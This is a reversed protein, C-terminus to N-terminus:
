KPVIVPQMGLARRLDILQGAHTGNHFCVRSVLSWLALPGDHWDITEDLTADGASRVAKAFRQCAQEFIIRGRELSPYISGDTSPVSGICVSETDFRQADGATGDGTTFDSEPMPGDDFYAAVRHMTVALHGLTWIVHNPMGPSQLTRSDEDFGALFRTFLPMTALISDAFADARLTM